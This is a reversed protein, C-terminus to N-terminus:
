VEIFRLTVLYWDDSQVDSWHVIPTAHVAPGSDHRFMVTYAVGRYTLTFKQGAIASAAFLEEVTDRPLWACDDGDPELTIARGSQRAGSEVVLSGALTYQQRQEVPQWDFEDSWLMDDHLQILNPGYELSAM